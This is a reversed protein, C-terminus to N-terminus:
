DRGPNGSHEHLREHTQPNPRQRPPRRLLPNRHSLPTWTRGHDTSAALTFQPADKAEATASWRLTDVWIPGISTNM